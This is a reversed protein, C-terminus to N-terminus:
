RDNIIRFVIRVQQTQEVGKLSIRDSNIQPSDRKQYSIESVAPPPPIYEVGYLSAINKTYEISYVDGLVVDRSDALTKAIDMANYSAKKILDRVIQDRLSDSFTLMYNFSLNPFKTGSISDIFQNFSKESYKIELELSESAEYGVSKAKDSSYDLAEQLNYSSLKIEKPNIGFNVVKDIFINM